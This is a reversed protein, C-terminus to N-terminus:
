RKRGGRYLCVKSKVRLNATGSIEWFYGTACPFLFVNEPSNHYSTPDPSFFAMAIGVRGV